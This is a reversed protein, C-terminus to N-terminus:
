RTGQDQAFYRTEPHVSNRAKHVIFFAQTKMIRLSLIIVKEYKTQSSLTFSDAVAM